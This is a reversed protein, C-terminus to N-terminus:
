DLSLTERTVLHRGGCFDSFLQECCEALGSGTRAGNGPLTPGERGSFSVCRTNRVAALPQAAHHLFPIEVVMCYEAVRQCHLYEARLSHSAPQAIAFVYDADGSSM